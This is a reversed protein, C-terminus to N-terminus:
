PPATSPALRARSEELSRRFLRIVEAKYDESNWLARRCLDSVAAREEPTGVMRFHSEADLFERATAYAGRGQDTAADIWAEWLDVGAPGPTYNSCRAVLAAPVELVIPQDRFGGEPLYERSMFVAPALFGTEFYARKAENIARRIRRTAGQIRNLVQMRATLGPGPEMNSFVPRSRERLPSYRDANWRTEYIVPNESLPCPSGVLDGGDV